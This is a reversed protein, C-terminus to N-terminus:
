SPLQRYKDAASPDLDDHAARARESLRDARADVHDLARRLSSHSDGADLFALEHDDADLVRRVCVHLAELSREAFESPNEAPRSAHTAALLLDDLTWTTTTPPM